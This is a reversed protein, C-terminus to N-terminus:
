LMTCGTITLVGRVCLQVKKGFMRGSLGYVFNASTETIGRWSSGDDLRIVVEYKPNGFEDSGRRNLEELTGVMYKSKSKTLQLITM